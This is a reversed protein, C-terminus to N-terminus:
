APLSLMGPTPQEGCSPLERISASHISTSLTLGPAHVREAIGEARDREKLHIGKLGHKAALGHHQHTVVRGLHQPSLTALYHVLQAETFGPKRLHYTDLGREFLAKLVLHERPQNIPPSILILRM